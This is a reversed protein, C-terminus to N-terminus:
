IHALNSTFPPSPPRCPLHLDPRAKCLAGIDGGIGANSDGTAGELDQGPGQEVEDRCQGRSSGQRVKWIRALGGLNVNWKMEASKAKIINM